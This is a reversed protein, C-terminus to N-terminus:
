ATAAAPIPYDHLSTTRVLAGFAIVEDIIDIVQTPRAQVEADSSQQAESEKPIWGLLERMKRNQEEFNEVESEWDQMERPNGEFKKM